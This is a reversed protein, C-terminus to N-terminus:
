LSQAIRTLYIDNLGSTAYYYHNCHLGVPLYLYFPLVSIVQVYILLQVHFLFKDINLNKLLNIDKPHIMCFAEIATLLTMM